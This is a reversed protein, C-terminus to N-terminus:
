KVELKDYHCEPFSLGEIEFDLFSLKIAKGVPQAIIYICERGSPYPNPYFPSEIIGESETFTGGCVLIFTIRVILIFM